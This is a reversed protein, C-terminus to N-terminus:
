ECIDSNTYATCVYSHATQLPCLQLSCHSVHLTQKYHPQVQKVPTSHPGALTVTAALGVPGILVPVSWVKWHEASSGVPDPRMYWHSLFPVKIEPSSEDVKITVTIPGLSPTAFM